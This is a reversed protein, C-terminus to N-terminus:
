GAYWSVWHEHLPSCLLSCCILDHLFNLMGAPFYEPAVWPFIDGGTQRNQFVAWYLIVQCIAAILQEPVVPYNLTQFEAIIVFLFLCPITLWNCSQLSRCCDYLLQSAKNVELQTQCHRSFLWEEEASLFPLDMALWYALAYIVINILSRSWRFVKEKCTKLLLCSIAWPLENNM